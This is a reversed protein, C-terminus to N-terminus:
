NICKSRIKLNKNLIDEIIASESSNTTATKRPTGDRARSLPTKPSSAKLSLNVLTFKFM